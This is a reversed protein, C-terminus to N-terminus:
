IIYKILLYFNMQEMEMRARAVEMERNVAHNEGYFIKAAPWWWLGSIEKEKPLTELVGFVSRHTEDKGCLPCFEPKEFEM